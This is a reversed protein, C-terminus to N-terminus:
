ELFRRRLEATPMLCAERKGFWRYRNRAIWDYAVNRLRRPVICFVSLLPWLGSLRRAVRLAADSRTYHKDDEILVMTTLNVAGLGRLKLLRRGTESQLAAFHFHGSPDRKLVFQVAAECLHCVGDFLLIRHQSM